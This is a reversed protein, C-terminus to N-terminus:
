GGEGTRPIAQFGADHLNILVEDAQRVDMGFDLWHFQKSGARYKKDDGFVVVRV